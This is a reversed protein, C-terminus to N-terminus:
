SLVIGASVMSNIIHLCSKLQGATGSSIHYFICIYKMNGLIFKAHCPSITYRFITINLVFFLFFGKVDYIETRM